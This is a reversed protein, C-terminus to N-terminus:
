LQCGNVKLWTQWVKYDPMVDAVVRYFNSSHNMEIRHALEHIVVYDQVKAPALILKWNFNLNGQSSCSGWRTKQERITIRHYTVGMIDAYYSTKELFIKKAAEKYRRKEQDTFGMSQKKVANEKIKKQKDLIWAEKQALFQEIRSKTMRRPARVKISGDQTIQVALTKRESYILEYEMQGM